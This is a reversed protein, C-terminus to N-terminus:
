HSGRACFFLLLGVFTKPLNDVYILVSFLHYLVAAIPRLDEWEIWMDAFTGVRLCFDSAFIPYNETRPPEFAGLTLMLLTERAYWDIDAIMLGRKLHKGHM